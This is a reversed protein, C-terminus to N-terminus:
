LKITKTDNEILKKVWMLRRLYPLTNKKGNRFKVVALHNEFFLPVNFITVYSTVVLEKPLTTKSLFEEISKIQENWNEM